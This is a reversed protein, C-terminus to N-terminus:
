GIAHKYARANAAAEEKRLALRVMRALESRRYPKSLLLVGPDLRGHHTIANEAYGSTYLVKLPTYRKAVEQALQRGNMKGPMIVDTFLLDFAAGGDIIELAEVANAAALTNYGLTQLQAIVFARVSANDEVILITENGREVDPEHSIEAIQQPEADARPLYIKFTTGSGEESYVRVHGGSQKVFGYVMSLGLGTGQGAKKTSFFPEFVKTLIAEPIGTGTDSVAILVYSGSELDNGANIDNGDIIVNSTEITLKGGDQMADRANIALNVLASSLQSPDVLAPWVNNTAIVRVEIHEGLTQHLLKSIDIMLDNIDIERPQLPQKRAFALLRATLEAGRDASESILRTISALEPDDAVAEVLIDITGTIVTLMNNFDHAIGGTLQGVSEMKQAQQLQEEAALKDTIDRLFANIIYGNHRRLATISVETVIETGDRRLSPSEYRRGPIGKEFEQLFETLRQLNASRIQKPIILDRLNQGVAEERTWGFMAEAKSSWRLITGNEDLQVFADLSSEIIAQAMQESELLAKQEKIRADNDRAVKAAGIIAGSRSKVPSVRLSVNVRRRDKTIRVTDHHKVKEGNKIHDLIERVKPRLEEPVIIDINEGIAEQSTFGFLIEAAHNWGTIIGDLSKTIIADDSSEVAASFLQEYTAETPNWVTM